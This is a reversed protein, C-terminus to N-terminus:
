NPSHRRPRRDAVFAAQFLRPDIKALVGGKKIRQGEAFAIEVLQGDVQSHIPVTNLAQVNGLGSVYIPVDQRVAAAVSVPIPRPASARTTGTDHRLWYLGGGGAIALLVAMIVIVVLKRRIRRSSGNPTV